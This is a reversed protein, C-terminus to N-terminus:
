VLAKAVIPVKIVPLKIGAKVVILVTIVPVTIGAITLKTDVKPKGISAIPATIPAPTANILFQSLTFSNQLAKPFTTDSTNLLIFFHVTSVKLFIYVEIDLPNFFITFTHM